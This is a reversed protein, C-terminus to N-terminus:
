GTFRATGKARPTRLMELGSKLTMSWSDLIDWSGSASIECFAISAM